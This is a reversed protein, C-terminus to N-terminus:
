TSSTILYWISFKNTPAYMTPTCPRLIPVDLGRSIFVRSLILLQILFSGPKSIRSSCSFLMVILSVLSFCTTSGTNLRCNEVVFYM